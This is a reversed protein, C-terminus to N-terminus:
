VFGDSVFAECSKVQIQVLTVNQVASFKPPLNEADAQVVFIHELSTAGRDNIDNDLSENRGNDVLVLHVRFRGSVGEKLTFNMNGSLSLCDFSFDDRLAGLSCKSAVKIEISCCGSILSM